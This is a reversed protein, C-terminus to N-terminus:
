AAAAVGHVGALGDVCPSRPQFREGVLANLCIGGGATSLIETGLRSCDLVVTMTPHRAVHDLNEALEVFADMGLDLDAPEQDLMGFVAVDGIQQSRDFKDFAVLAARERDRMAEDFVLAVGPRHGAGIEAAEDVVLAHQRGRGRGLFARLQGGIQLREPLDAAAGALQLARQRAAAINGVERGLRTPGCSMAAQVSRRISRLLWARSRSASFRPSGPRLRGPAPRGCAPRARRSRRACGASAAPRRDVRDLDAVVAVEMEALHQDGLVVGEDEVELALRAAREGLAAGLRRRRAVDGAQM